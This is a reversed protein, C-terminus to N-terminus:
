GSPVRAAYVKALAQEFPLPDIGFAAKVPGNDCTNDRKLNALQDTTIPPKPLLAELAAAAAFLLPMPVHLLPKKIGIHRQIAELLQDFTVASGGGIEYTQEATAPDALCGTICATLDDIHLPQFRNQGSGPVPIFPPALPSLPPKRILDEMQQVFEGDPGLVVSPRFITYPIGSERAAQEAQFKTRSYESEAGPESGLASVYVFREAAGAARAAALVNKTGQVHVAEFTQGGARAEQIIGVLHVVAQCGALTDPPLTAADTVSGPVYAVGPVGKGEGPTARALGVVEHGAAILARATHGGIFGSAGTVFVKM